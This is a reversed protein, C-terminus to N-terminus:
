FSFCYQVDQCLEAEELTSAPPKKVLEFVERISRKTRALSCKSEAMEESCPSSMRNSFIRGQVSCLQCIQRRWDSNQVGKLAREILDRDFRVLTVDISRRDQTSSRGCKSMSDYTM